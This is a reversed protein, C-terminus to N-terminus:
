AEAKWSVCAWFVWSSLAGASVCLPLSPIFILEPIVGVFFEGLAFMWWGTKRRTGLFLGLVTGFLFAILYAAPTAFLIFAGMLRMVKAGGLLWGFLRSFIRFMTQDPKAIFKYCTGKM